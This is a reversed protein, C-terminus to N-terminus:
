QGDQSELWARGAKKASAATKHLTPGWWEAGNNTIYRFRYQGDPQKVADLVGAQEM